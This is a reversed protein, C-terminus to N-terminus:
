EIAPPFKAVLELELGSRQVKLPLWTGPPQRKVLAILDGASAVRLGAATLVRDGAKVGASEAVSGAVVERVRLGEGEEDLLVGLRPTDGARAGAVSFVADALGAILESCPVDPTVPLWTKAAGAGLARLQHPVGHGNRLHGSGIIGVVLADPDRAAAQALADAFARDWTLQAEVFREFADADNPGGARRHREFWGRLHERYQASPPAPDSVGERQEPPIAKWGKGGVERVLDRDVNLAVLPVRHLRAFHFIPLYLEADFRWVTNWQTERLLQAEGINGAVWRDLVPQARRPLMEMGIVLKGRVGLLMGLSHLQWRHHDPNDHDEGLLVFRGERAAAVVESASVIRTGSAAPIGWQGPPICSQAPALLPGSSLCLFAAVAPVRKLLSFDSMTM